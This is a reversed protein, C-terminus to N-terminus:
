ILADLKSTLFTSVHYVVKGGSACQRTHEDLIAQCKLLEAKLTIYSIIKKLM